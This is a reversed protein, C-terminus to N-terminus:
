SSHPKVEKYTKFVLLMKAMKSHIKVDIEGVTDSGKDAYDEEISRVHDALEQYTRAIGGWRRICKFPVLM